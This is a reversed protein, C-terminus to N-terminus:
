WSGSDVWVWTWGSENRDGTKIKNEEVKIGNEVSCGSHGKYFTLIIM